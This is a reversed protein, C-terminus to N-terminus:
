CIIYGCHINRPFILITYFIKMKAAGCGWGGGEGKIETYISPLM